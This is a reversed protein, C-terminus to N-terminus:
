GLLQKMVALIALWMAVSSAAIVLGGFFLGRFRENDDARNHGALPAGHRSSDGSAGLTQM